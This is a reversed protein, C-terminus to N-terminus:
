VVKLIGLDFSAAIMGGHRGRVAARKRWDM